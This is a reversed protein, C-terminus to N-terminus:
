NKMYKRRITIAQFPNEIKSTDKLVKNLIEQVSTVYIENTSPNNYVLYDVNGFVTRLGSTKYMQGAGVLEYTYRVHYFHLCISASATKNNIAEYSAYFSSTITAPSWDEGLTSLTGFWARFVNSSGLHLDAYLEEDSGYNKASIKVNKLLNFIKIAEATATLSIQLESSVQTYVDTKGSVDQLYYKQIFNNSAVEEKTNKVAVLNFRKIVDKAVKEPLESLDLGFVTTATDAGMVFSDKGIDLDDYDDVVEKLLASFVESLEYEFTTGGWNQFLGRSHPNMQYFNDLIKNIFVSGIRNGAKRAIAASKLDQFFEQIKKADQIIPDDKKVYKNEMARHVEHVFSSVHYGSKGNYYM